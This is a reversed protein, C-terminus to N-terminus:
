NGVEEKFNDVTQAQVLIENALEPLNTFFDVAVDVSYETEKGDIEVGKWDIMCSEVFAKTMLETEKDAGLTGKEIQRAYPKHYKALAVKIKDSNAGGFRRVLFGIDDTIMIWIGSKELSQNTKYFKDLNTQM